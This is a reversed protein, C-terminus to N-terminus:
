TIKVVRAALGRLAVLGRLAPLRVVMAIAGSYLIMGKLRTTSAM